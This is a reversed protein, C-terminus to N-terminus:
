MAWADRKGINCFIDILISELVGEGITYFVTGINGCLLCSSVISSEYIESKRESVLKKIISWCINQLKRRAPVRPASMPVSRAMGHDFLFVMFPHSSDHNQPIRM